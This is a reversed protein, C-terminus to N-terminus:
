IISIDFKDNIKYRNKEISPYEFYNHFENSNVGNFNSLVRDINKYSYYSISIIFIIIFPFIKLKDTKHFLLITILCTISFIIGYGGYRTQPLLYLWTFIPLTFIIIIFFKKKIDIIIESYKIKNLNFIIILFLSFIFFYIINLFRNM